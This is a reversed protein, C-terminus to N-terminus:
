VKSIYKWDGSVVERVKGDPSTVTATTNAPVTVHMTVTDGVREWNSVILGHPSDFKCTVWTLDGLV